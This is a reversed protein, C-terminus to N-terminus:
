ENGAEKILRKLDVLQAVEAKYEMTGKKIHSILIEQHIAVNKLKSLKIIAFKCSICASVSAMAKEDCEDTKSCGGHITDSYSLEGNRFKKETKNRDRLIQGEGKTKINREIWTGNGGILKESSLLVEYIYVIADVEPRTAALEHRFHQSNNGFLRPARSAGKAYYISMERFIHKLQRKLSPLSVLGSQSVYVALSRRFQHSCLHWRNGVSFNPESAWDRYPEIKELVELDDKSIIFDDSFYLAKYIDERGFSPAKIVVSKKLVAGTLELYGISVFLPVQDLDFGSYKYALNSIAAAVSLSNEVDKSTIWRERKKEGILKSTQGILRM